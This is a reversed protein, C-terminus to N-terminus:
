SKLNLWFAPRVGGSDRSVGSGIVVVGGDTSVYAARSSADGPSRLWWWCANGKDDKAIRAANNADNITWNSGTSGKKKLNATSDGFYRCVEDLSLLFIKDMTDNGGPTGYWPNNPNANRTEAVASKDAGLKNYFENNLYQRLDCSEWTVDEYKANYPRTELVKESILLAENNEVALVRWDINAFKQISGVRPEIKITENATNWNPLAAAHNQIPQATQQQMPKQKQINLRPTATQPKPLQWGLAAAFSRLMTEADESGQLFNPLKTMARKISIEQENAPKQIAEKLCDLARKDLLIKILDKEDKFQSRTIDAFYTVVKSGLLVDAGFNEAIYRLASEASDIDGSSTQAAIKNGCNSCFNVSKGPSVNLKEGCKDCKM